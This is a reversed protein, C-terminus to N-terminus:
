EATMDSSGIPAFRTTPNLAMAGVFRDFKAPMGTSSGAPSDILIYDFDPRLDDALQIMETPSIASKDRTQAAPLLSLEPLRKDRIM